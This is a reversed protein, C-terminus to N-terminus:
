GSISSPGEFSTVILEIGLSHKASLLILKPIGSPVPWLKECLSAMRYPLKVKSIRRVFNFPHLLVSVPLNEPMLKRSTSSSFLYLRFKFGTPLTSLSESVQWSTTMRLSSKMDISLTIQSSSTTVWTETSVIFPVTTFNPSTSSSVSLLPEYSNTSKLRSM